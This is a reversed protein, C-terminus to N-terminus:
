DYSRFNYNKNFKIDENINYSKAQTKGSKLSIAKGTVEEYEKEFYNFIPQFLPRTVMNGDADEIEVETSPDFYIHKINNKLEAAERRKDLSRALRAAVSHQILPNQM